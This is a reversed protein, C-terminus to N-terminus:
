TTPRRLGRRMLASRTSSPTSPRKGPGVTPPVSDTVVGDMDFIVARCLSTDIVVKDGVVRLLRSV